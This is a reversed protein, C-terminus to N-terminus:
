VLGPITMKYRSGRLSRDCKGSGTLQFKSATARAIRADQSMSSGNAFLVRYKVIGGADLLQVVLHHMIYHRKDSYELETTETLSWWPTSMLNVLALSSQRAVVSEVSDSIYRAKQLVCELQFASNKQLLM